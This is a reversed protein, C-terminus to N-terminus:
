RWSTISSRRRSTRHFSRFDVFLPPPSFGPHSAPHLWSPGGPPPPKASRHGTAPLRALPPPSAPTSQGRPTLLRRSSVGGGRKGTWCCELPNGRVLLGYRHARRMIADGEFIRRPDKPDLTLLTRAAKRLKSLVAQVRWVERKNRLGYEGVLKLEM